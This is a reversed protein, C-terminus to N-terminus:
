QQDTEEDTVPEDSSAKAQYYRDELKKYAGADVQDVATAITELSKAYDFDEDFLRQAEKSATAVEENTIRYRNAYQILQEALQASDVLDETKESLIDLDSQIMILQKTIDEMDIQVQNMDDNLKDIEDSVVQYYDLYSKAVGPLNLNEVERRISHLKFEFKQLTQKAQEEEQALGAVSDNIEQQQKEIQTLDQAQRTQRAEVETYIAENNHVAEVDKQYATEINRIQEAFERATELENHDLTYNLNLRELERTLLTNQNKAHSIFKALYDLKENVKPKAAMEKQMLDYFHDIKTSLATDVQQVNDLNLKALQAKSNKIEAPLAAIQDHLDAEPFQYGQESLEKEGQKLEDIQTPFETELNKVLPPIMELMDDLHDTDSQLQDLLKAAAEHDGQSTLERFHDNDDELKGLQTELGDIADGYMFNKALLTKRLSQYKAELSKVAQKHQADIKKLEQIRKQIQDIAQQAVNLSQTAKNTAQQATLVRYQKANNIADNIQKELRPLRNKNLDEYDNTLDKVQELTKGTLSMAKVEAVATGLADLSLETRQEDIGKLRRILYQQYILIAAYIVIALIVIGILVRFM